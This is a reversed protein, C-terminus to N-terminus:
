QEEDKKPEDLLSTVHSMEKLLTSMSLVVGECFGLRKELSKILEGQDKLMEVLTNNISQQDNM